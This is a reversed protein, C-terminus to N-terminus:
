RPTGVARCATIVPRILRAGVREEVREVLPEHTSVSPRAAPLPTSTVPRRMSAISPGGSGVGAVANLSAPRVHTISRSAPGSSDNNASQAPVSATTSPEARLVAPMPLTSEPGIGACAHTRVLVSRRRRARRRSLPGRHQGREVLESTARTGHRPTGTDRDSAGLRHSPARTCTRKPSGSHWTSTRRM